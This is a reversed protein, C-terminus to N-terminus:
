ATWAEALALTRAHEPIALFANRTEEDHIKAARAMLASRAESIAKGAEESKGSADLAEAWVLRALAEGEPVFADYADLRRKAEGAAALAAEPQRRALEISALTALAMPRMPALDALMQDAVQAQGQAADLDGSMALIKAYYVRM